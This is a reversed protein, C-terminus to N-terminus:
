AGDRNHSSSLAFIARLLITVGFGVVYAALAVVTGPPMDLTHLLFLATVGAALGGLIPAWTRPIGGVSAYLLAEACHRPYLLGALALQRPSPMAM